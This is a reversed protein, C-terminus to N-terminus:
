VQLLTGHRQVRRIAVGTLRTTTDVESAAGQGLHGGGVPQSASPVSAATPHQPKVQLGDPQTGPSRAFPLMSSSFGHWGDNRAFCCCFGLLCCHPLLLRASASRSACCSFGLLLLSSSRFGRGSHAPPPSCESQNHSPQPQSVLTTLPKAFPQQQLANPQQPTLNHDNYGHRATHHQQQM